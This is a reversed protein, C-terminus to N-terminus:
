SRGIQYDADSHLESNSRQLHARFWAIVTRKGETLCAAVEDFSLIDDRDDIMKTTLLDRATMTRRSVRTSCLLVFKAFFPSDAIAGEDFCYARAAPLFARFEERSCSGEGACLARTM